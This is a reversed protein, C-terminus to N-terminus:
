KLDRCFVVRGDGDSNGLDGGSWGSYLVLDGDLSLRSLRNNKKAWSTQECYFYNYKGKYYGLFNDMYKSGDLIFWLEWVKINRWGKPIVIENYPKVWKQPRQVELNLEKIKIPEEKMEHGCTKCKM